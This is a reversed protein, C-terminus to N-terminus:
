RRSDCRYGRRIPLRHPGKLLDSVPLRGARWGGRAADGRPQGDLLLKPRFAPLGDVHGAPNFTHQRQKVHLFDQATSQRLVLPVRYMSLRLMACSGRGDNAMIHRARAWLDAQQHDHRPQALHSGAGGRRSVRVRTSTLVAGPVTPSGVPGLHGVGGARCWPMPPGQGVQAGIPPRRPVPVGVWVGGSRGGGDVVLARRRAGGGGCAVWWRAVTAKTLGLRDTRRKALKCRLIASPLEM